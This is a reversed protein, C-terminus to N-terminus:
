QPWRTQATGMHDMSVISTRVYFMHRRARKVRERKARKVRERKARALRKRDEAFMRQMLQAGQPLNERIRKAASNEHPLVEFPRQSVGPVSTGHDSYKSVGLSSPSPHRDIYVADMDSFGCNAM